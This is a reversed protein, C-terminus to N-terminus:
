GAPARERSRTRRWVCRAGWSPGAIVTVSALAPVFPEVPRPLWGGNPGALPFVAVSAIAAVGATAPTWAVLTLAYRM